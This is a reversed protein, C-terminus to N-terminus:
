THLNAHRLAAVQLLPPYSERATADTFLTAQTTTWTHQDQIQDLFVGLIATSAVTPSASPDQSLSSATPTPIQDLDDNSASSSATSRHSQIAQVLASSPHQEQLELINLATLGALYWSIPAPHDLNEMQYAYLATLARHAFARTLYGMDFLCCELLHVLADHYPLVEDQPWTATMHPIHMAVHFRFNVNTHPQALVPRLDYSSQQTLTQLCTQAETAISSLFHSCHLVVFPVVLTAAPRFGPGYATAACSILAYIAPVVISDLPIRPHMGLLHVVHNRVLALVDNLGADTARQLPGEILSSADRLARVCHSASSFSGELIHGSVAPGANDM